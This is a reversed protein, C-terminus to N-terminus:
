QYLENMSINNELVKNLACIYSSASKEISFYPLAYKRIEEFNTNGLSEIFEVAEDVRKFNLHNYLFCGPINNLIQETDGIGASAITPIGMLLYEGLKIPAVGQMSFKPERIAFAIDAVSLYSPIEEFPVTKVICKEFLEMPIRDNAFPISGSLILFVADSNMKIYESFISIMEDFGYQMGLSGCYVFVITEKSIALQVRKNERNSTNPEFVESDRGNCVVSFKERDLKSNTAVHIDISKNSRTIVGDADLLMQSEQKKLFKYVWSKKSLGSFDVREELPLGDADFLIKFNIKKIRKVMIAPITSRPMLININNDKIYKKLFSIGAYLTIINGLVAIPKRLIIRKTYIINLEKAAKQTIAIKESTAWTFQIIHFKYDSNLQIQNFIPMFLGEMYSTQPGDWTIFLINKM